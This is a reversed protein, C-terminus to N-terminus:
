RRKSSATAAAAARSPPACRRMPMPWCSIPRTTRSWGDGALAIGISVSVQTQRQAIVLAPEIARLLNRAMVAAAQTGALTPSYVVFQDGGLRAAADGGHLVGRIRAAVARLLQDGARQGFSENILRFRDLDILLM